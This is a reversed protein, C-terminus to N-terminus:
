KFMASFAVIILKTSYASVKIGEILPVAAM